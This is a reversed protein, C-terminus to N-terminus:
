DRNVNIDKTRLTERVHSEIEKKRAYLKLHKPFPDCFPFNSYPGTIQYHTSLHNCEIYLQNGRYKKIRLWNKKIIQFFTYKWYVWRILWQM